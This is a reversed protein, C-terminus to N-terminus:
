QKNIALRGKCKISSLLQLSSYLSKITICTSSVECVIVMFYLNYVKELEWGAVPM